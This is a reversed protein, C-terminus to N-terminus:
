CVVGVDAAWCPARGRKVPSPSGVEIRARACSGWGCPMAAGAYAVVAAVMSVQHATTPFLASVVILRLNQGKWCDKKRKGKRKKQMAVAFVYCDGKGLGKAM